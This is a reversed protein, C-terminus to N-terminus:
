AGGLRDAVILPLRKRRRQPHDLDPQRQGLRRGQDKDGMERRYRDSGFDFPIWATGPVFAGQDTPQGVVDTAQRMGMGIQLRTFRSSAAPKGTIDGEWDNIGKFRVSDGAAAM